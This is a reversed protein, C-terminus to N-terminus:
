QNQVVFTAVYDEPKPSLSARPYPQLETLKLLYASTSIQSKPPTTHLETTLHGVKFSVSIVADGATICLADIPCRSDSVLRNFRVWDGGPLTASEGVKLQFPQNVVADPGTPNFCGGSAVAAVVLAAIRLM